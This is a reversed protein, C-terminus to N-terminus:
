RAFAQRLAEAEHEWALDPLDDLPFWRVEAVDDHAAPEGQAAVRYLLNLTWRHDYRGPWVGLLRMSGLSLGTEELFERRLAAEPTEQVEMIGGPLDWCGKKPERGRRCLLVRDGRLWVAGVAPIPNEWRVQGCAPCVHRARGEVHREVLLQGCAGCHRHVCRGM